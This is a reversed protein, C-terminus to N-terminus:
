RRGRKSEGEFHIVACQDRMRDYIRADFIQEMETIPLNSTYITPLGNATRYNVVAHIYATFAETSSRTGIDDLIAFSATQTRKIIAGIETLGAEDKTMTALNYQTQLETVDLFYATTQPPQGGTQMAYLYESALWANLLASATTTKGTGPSESWLYLSKAREGGSIHRKFTAVYKDLMEYIKTQGERALSTKLTIYRYDRPINATATRGGNGNLGHFAIRHQCLDSCNACKDRRYDSLICPKNKKTM